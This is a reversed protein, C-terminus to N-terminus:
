AGHFGHQWHIFIYPYDTALQRIWRGAKRMSGKFRKYKKVAWKILRWNFVGFIRNLNYKRFKGYYNLWGRLQPNFEQAIRTIDSGTWLHFNSKRLVDGIKVESKRSIACDYSLFLTGEKNTAPRPQFSFGLFDFKVTKFNSRRNATKCHVIKTKNENLNLKCSSLREKIAELLQEAKAESHCHVIIDDAYRVFSLQPYNIAFWKDFTYHLFLNSLLPSIVGGQPTGQGTRQRQNGKNDEIPATLWRTVYINIWKENVHRELAKLLLEHSMNDFFGSIDMDIVWSYKLVNRRVQAVAQHANKRPRYGYSDSLFEAELRPELHSKIVQQAIRDNVTPVGSKRKTGDDKAIEVELVAPPFYSGSSLRNWLIYLNDGLREEYMVITQHDIGASGNNSRVKKYAELVMQKTIPIEKTAAGKSRGRNGSTSLPLEFQIVETRREVGMVSAEESSCSLGGDVLADTNLRMPTKGAQVKGKMDKTSKRQEM